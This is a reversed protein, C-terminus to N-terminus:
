FACAAVDAMQSSVAIERLRTARRELRLPTEIGLTM